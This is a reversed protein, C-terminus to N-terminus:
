PLPGLTGYWAESGNILLRIHGAGDRQVQYCESPGPPRLWSWCFQDQRLRWSGSVPKSMETGTFSGGRRFQYAFHVGDGFEKDQFIARLADGTVARWREEGLAGAPSSFAYLLVIVTGL